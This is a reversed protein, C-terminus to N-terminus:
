LEIDIIHTEWKAVKVNTGTVTHHLILTGNSTEGDEDANNSGETDNSDGIEVIMEEPGTPVPNQGPISDRIQEQELIREFEKEVIETVDKQYVVSDGDPLSIVLELMNQLDSITDPDQEFLARTARSSSHGVGPVGFTGFTVSISGPKTSDTPLTISWDNPGITQDLRSELPAQSKLYVGSSLNTIKGTVRVGSNLGFANVRISMGKISTTPKLTHNASFARSVTRVSSKSASGFSTPKLTHNASFARTGTKSNYRVYTNSIEEESKAQVNANEFSSFDFKLDAFEAESRNFCIVAYDQEPLYVRVHDVNNYSYHYITTDIPNEDCPFFYLTMGKPKEDLDSWDIDFDLTARDLAKFEDESMIHQFSCSGLTLACLVLLLSERIM